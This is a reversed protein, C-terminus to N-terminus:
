TRLCDRSERAIMLEENTPIIMIKVRSYATSVFREKSSPENNKETDIEIGIAHLNVCIKERVVPSNEGIGATFVLGDIGNLIGYYSSIYKKISYCLTEFALKAKKNSETAAKVISRMDGSIGSIGLLGSEKNMLANLAESNRYKPHIKIIYAIIAPDIDGCRTGMVVGQLPTFGMSTDIVKGKEIATISSGNGLHATILKLENLSKGLMIAARQSVYNHSTGHFGYKRIHYKEYYEFPLAYMYAYDPMTQHFATDFVLVSPIGPLMKEVALIGAYHAPTHLPAISFCEKLGKKVEKTVLVSRSFRDGGHVIRHGIVDIEDINVISGIEKDLLDNIILEVAETHSTVKVSNKKEESVATQRKYYSKSPGCEVIGWAIKKENEMEFLTYKVSSSGCNVVLVKM